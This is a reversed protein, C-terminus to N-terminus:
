SQRPRWLCTRIDEALLYKDEIVLIHCNRLTREGMNLEGM